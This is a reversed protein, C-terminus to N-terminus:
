GDAQVADVGGVVSCRCQGRRNREREGEGKDRESQKRLYQVREGMSACWGNARVRM